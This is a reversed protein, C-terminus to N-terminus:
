MMEVPDTVACYLRVHENKYSLDFIQECRLLKSDVFSKETHNRKLIENFPM